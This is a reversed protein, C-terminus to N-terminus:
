GSIRFFLPMQSYRFLLSSSFLRQENLLFRIKRRKESFSRLGHSPPFPFFRAFFFSPFFFRFWGRFITTPRPSFSHATSISKKPLPSICRPDPKMRRHSFTMSFLFAAAAIKRRSRPLLTVRASDADGQFLVFPLLKSGLFPSFCQRPLLTPQRDM